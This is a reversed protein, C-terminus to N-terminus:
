YTDKQESSKLAAEAQVIAQEWKRRAALRNKSIAALEEESTWGSEGLRNETAEFAQDEALMKEYLTAIQARLIAEEDLIEPALEVPVQLQTGSMSSTASSMSATPAHASTNEGSKLSSEDGVSADHSEQLTLQHYLRQQLQHVPIPTSSPAALLSTVSLGAMQSSVNTRSAGASGSPSMIMPVSGEFALASVPRPSPVASSHSSIPTPSLPTPIESLEPPPRTALPSPPIPPSSSIVASMAASAALVSSSIAPQGTSSPMPSHPMSSTGLVAVASPTLPTNVGTTPTAVGSRASSSPSVVVPYSLDGRLTESRITTGVPLQPSSATAPSAPGTSPLLLSHRSSNNTTAGGPFFEGTELNTNSAIDLDFYGAGNQPQPTLPSTVATAALSLSHQGQQSTAFLPSSLSAIPSTPAIPASMRRKLGQRLKSPVFKKFIAKGLSAAPSPGSSSSGSTAGSTPGSQAFGADSQRDALDSFADPDLFVEANANRVSPQRSLLSATAEVSAEQDNDNIINEIIDIGESVNSVSGSVHDLSTETAHVDSMRPNYEEPPTILQNQHHSYLLALHAQHQQHYHQSQPTYPLQQQQQMQMYTTGSSVSRSVPRTGRTLVQPTLFTSAASPLPSPSPSPPPIASTPTSAILPVDRLSTASSLALNAPRQKRQSSVHM